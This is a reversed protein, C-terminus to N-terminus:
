YCGITLENLFVDSISNYLNIKRVNLEEKLLEMASVTGINGHIHGEHDLDKDNTSSKDNISSESYISDTTMDRTNSGSESSNSENLGAEHSESDVTNTSKNLPSYLSSDYASKDAQDITEDDQITSRTNTDSSESTSANSLDEDITENNVHSSNSVIGETGKDIIDDHWTEYKDFNEVPNYELEFATFWKTFNFKWKRWFLACSMYFFDPDTYLVEFQGGRNVLTYLLVEKDFSEIDELEFTDVISKDHSNLYNEIGILTMRAQM